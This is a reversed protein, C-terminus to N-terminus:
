KPHQNCEQFCQYIRSYTSISSEMGTQRPSFLPNRPYQVELKLSRCDVQQDRLSNYLFTERGFDVLGYVKVKREKKKKIHM